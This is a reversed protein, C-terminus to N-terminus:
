GNVRALLVDAFYPDNGKTFRTISVPANRWIGRYIEFAATAVLVANVIGYRSIFAKFIVSEKLADRQPAGFRETIATVVYDRLDQWTWDAAKKLLFASSQTGPSTTVTSAAPAERTVIPGSMVDTM